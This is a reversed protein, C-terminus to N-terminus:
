SELLQRDDATAGLPCIAMLDAISLPAVGRARPLVVNPKANTLLDVSQHASTLPRRTTARLGMVVGGFLSALVTGAILGAVLFHSTLDNVFLALPVGVFSFVVLLSLPILILPSAMGGRRPQITPMPSEVALYHWPEAMGRFHDHPLQDIAPVRRQSPGLIEDARVGWGLPAEPIPIPQDRSFDECSPAVQTKVSTFSFAGDDGEDVPSSVQLSTM